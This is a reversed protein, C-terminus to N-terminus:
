RGAVAARRAPRLRSRQWTVNTTREPRWRTAAAETSAFVLADILRMLLTFVVAWAVMRDVRLLRFDRHMMAGVGSSTALAEIVVVLKWSLAFGTRVSAFLAGTLQPVIVYRWRCIRGFRFVKSMDDLQRDLNKVSEIMLSAVFPAVSFGLAIINSHEGLGFMLMALIIVVPMPVSLAVVVWPRLFSEAARSMGMMAGGVVGVVFALAFGVSVRWLTVWLHSYSRPSTLIDVAAFVVDHPTPMRDALGSLLYWALIGVGAAIAVTLRDGGIGSEAAAGAPEPAGAVPQLEPAATM